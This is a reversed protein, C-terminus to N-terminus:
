IPAIGRIAGAAVGCPGATPREPRCDAPAPRIPAPRIPAPGIPAPSPPPAASDGSSGSRCDPSPLSSCPPARHTPPWCSWPIAAALLVAVIHATWEFARQRRGQRGTRDFTRAWDPSEAVLRHEIDLLTEREHDSLM